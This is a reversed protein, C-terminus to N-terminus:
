PFLSKNPNVSNWLNRYMISVDTPRIGHQSLIEHLLACSVSPNNNHVPLWLSSPPSLFVDLWWHCLGLFENGGALGWRRINGFRGLVTSAFNSVHLQANWGKWKLGKVTLTCQLALSLIELLHLKTESQLAGKEKTVDERDWVSWSGQHWECTVQKYTVFLKVSSTLLLPFPTM